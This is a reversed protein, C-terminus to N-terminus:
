RARGAGPSRAPDLFYGDEGTLLVGELGLERLTAIAWYVRKAAFEAAVEQGPWGSDFLDFVGVGQGPHTAWREALAALVRRVGGRRTLKVELQGLRFRGGGAEVELV